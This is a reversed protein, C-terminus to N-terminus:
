NFSSDDFSFCHKVCCELFSSYKYQLSINFDWKQFTPNLDDEQNGKSKKTQKSLLREQCDEEFQM